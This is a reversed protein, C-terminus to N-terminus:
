YEIKRESISVPNHSEGEFITQQIWNGHKDFEYEVYYEIDEDSDWWVIMSNMELHANKLYIPVNNHWQVEYGKDGNIFETIFGDKNYNESGKWVEIGNADYDIWEAGNKDHRIYERSGSFKDDTYTQTEKLWQGDRTFITVQNLYDSKITMKSMFDGEYEYTISMNLDGNEDTFTRKEIQGNKNYFYKSIEQSNGETDYGKILKANGEDNFEIKYADQLEGKIVEDFKSKADWTTVFISKVPRDLGWTEYDYKISDRNNCSTLSFLIGTLAYIFHRQKM